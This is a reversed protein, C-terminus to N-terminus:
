IFNLIIYFFNIIFSYYLLSFIIFLIYSYLNSIIYLLIFPKSLKYLLIFIIFFYLYLIITIITHTTISDYFIIQYEKPLPKQSHGQHQILSYIIPTLINMLKLLPPKIEVVIAITLHQSYLSLMIITPKLTAMTLWSTHELYPKSLTITISSNASTKASLTAPGEPRYAGAWEIM